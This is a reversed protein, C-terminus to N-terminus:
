NKTEFNKDCFKRHKILRNTSDFAIGCNPCKVEMVINYDEVPEALGLKFLMDPNTVEFVEGVELDPKEEPTWSNSVKRVLM